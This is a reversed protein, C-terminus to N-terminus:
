AVQEENETERDASYVDIRLISGNGADVKIKQLEARLVTGSQSSVATNIATQVPITALKVQAAEQDGDDPLRISGYISKEKPDDAKSIGPLSVALAAGVVALLLFRNLYIM